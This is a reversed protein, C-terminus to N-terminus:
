SEDKKGKPITLLSLDAQQKIFGEALMEVAASEIFKDGLTVIVNGQFNMKELAEAALKAAHGTGLQPQQYVYLCSPNIANVTELVQEAKDGITLMFNEFGLKQFTAITRNIAPIGDIEFCVKAMDNRGMRTGKGAALIVVMTNSAMTRDTAM